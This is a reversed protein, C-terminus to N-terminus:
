AAYVSAFMTNAFMNPFFIKGHVEPSRPFFSLGVASATVHFNNALYSFRGVFMSSFLFIFMTSVSGCVDKTKTLFGVPSLECCVKRLCNTFGTSIVRVNHKSCSAWLHIRLKIGGRGSVACLRILDSDYHNTAWKILTWSAEKTAWKSCQLFENRFTRRNNILSFTFLVDCWLPAGQHGKVSSAKWRLFLAVNKRLIKMIINFYKLCINWLFKEFNM